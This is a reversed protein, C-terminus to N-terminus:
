NLVVAVPLAVEGGYSTDTSGYTTSTMPDKQAFLSALGWSDEPEPAIRARLLVAAEKLGSFVAMELATWGNTIHKGGAPDAGQKLLLNLVNHHGGRAAMVLPTNGQTDQIDADAGAALLAATTHEYGRRASFFLPTRGAKNLLVKVVEQHGRRAAWSLPIQGNSDQHDPNVGYKNLLLKAVDCHGEMCAQLLPTWGTTDQVDPEIDDRGLLASLVRNHGNRAARSLSTQEWINKANIDVRRDQLLITVVPELGDNAAWMLPSWGDEDVAVHGQEVAWSLPTRYHSDTSSPIDGDRLLNRAIADIGFYAVLHLRTIGSPASQQDKMILAQSAAEVKKYNRLFGMILENTSIDHTCIRAHNGWNGAAYQYLPHRQLREQFARQSACSGQGLEDFSRLTIYSAAINYRSDELWSIPTRELYEQITYHVLRITQSTEDVTVLGLCTSVMDEIDPINDKDLESTDLELALAHQLESTTLPRTSFRIWSIVTQALERRGKGQGEIRMIANKYATDYADSGRPLNQLAVRIAKRTSKGELSTIYLHALLFIGDVAKGIYTTIEEQLKGDRQVFAPLRSMNGVLYRQIDEDSARIEMQETNEFENIIEPISRTTALISIDVKKQLGFIESLLMSRTYHRCEDLADIIVFVRSYTSAICAMCNSIDELLPKSPIHQGQALQATLSGLLAESSLEDQRQFNCFIYAIGVDKIDGFKGFVDSIVTAALITKGARPIGHCLLSQRPNTIWQRYKESALIWNGTGKRRRRLFDTQEKNFDLQSLWRLVERQQESQQKSHEIRLLEDVRQKTASTTKSDANTTFHNLFGVQM